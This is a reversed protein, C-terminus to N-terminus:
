SFNGKKMENVLIELSRIQNKRVFERKEKSTRVVSNTASDELHKIKLIPLYVSELGKEKISLYLLEEERYLFTKPNFGKLQIFFSPTFIICCGWLVCNTRREEKANALNINKLKIYIYYLLPIKKLIKKLTIKTTRFETLQYQYQELTLLDKSYRGIKNNALIIQPGIVAVNSELYEMNIKSYFRDDILLTDNNLCCIYRPNVKNRIYEIGANNGRAFGENKHMCLVDVKSDDKFINELKEGSKNISKNDVIVIYYSTTDIKKHISEVCNITDLYTNYHLIVFGIDVNM